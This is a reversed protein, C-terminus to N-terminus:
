EEDPLERVGALIAELDGASFLDQLDEDNKIRNNLDELAERNQEDSQPRYYLTALDGVMGKLAAVAASTGEREPRKEIFLEIVARHYIAEIFYDRRREPVTHFWRSFLAFAERHVKEFTEPRLYRLVNAIMSRLPEIIAYGNKSEVWAALWKGQLEKIVDWPDRALPEETHFQVLDPLLQTAISINFMRFPSLVDVAARLQDEEDMLYGPQGLMEAITRALRDGYKEVLENRNLEHAEEQEINEITKLLEENAAPVGWGFDKLVSALESHRGAQDRIQAQNFPSLPLYYYRDRLFFPQCDIPARSAMIWLTRGPKTSPAQLSRQLWGTLEFELQEVSDMVIVVPRREAEATLQPIIQKNFLEVLREEVPYLRRRAEEDAVDGTLAGAVEAWQEEAEIFDDPLSKLDPYLRYALDILLRGRAAPGLYRDDIPVGDILAEEDVNLYAVPLTPYQEGLAPLFIDEIFTSLGIGRQQGYVVIVSRPQTSKKRRKRVEDLLQKKEGDRPVLHKGHSVPTATEIVATNMM